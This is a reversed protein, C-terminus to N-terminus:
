VEVLIQWLLSVASVSILFRSDEKLGVKYFNLFIYLM